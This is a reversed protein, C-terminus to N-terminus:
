NIKLLFPNNTYLQLLIVSIGRYRRYVEEKEFKTWGGGKKHSFDSGRKKPFIGGGEGVIYIITM